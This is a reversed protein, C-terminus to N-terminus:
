QVVTEIIRRAYHETGMLGADINNLEDVADSSSALLKRLKALLEPNSNLGADGKAECFDEFEHIERWDIRIRATLRPPLIELPVNSHDMADGLDGLVSSLKALKYCSEGKSPGFQAWDTIRDAEALFEALRPDRAWSERCAELSEKGARFEPLLDRLLNVAGNRGRVLAFYMRESEDTVISAPDAPLARRLMEELAKAKEENEVGMKHVIEHLAFALVRQQVNSRKAGNKILAVDFCIENSEYPFASAARAKKKKDLCPKKSPVFKMKALREYVNEKGEGPFLSRLVEPDFPREDRGKGPRIEGRLRQTTAEIYQLVFPALKRAQLIAHEVDESNVPRDKGFNGGGTDMTGALSAPGLALLLLALFCAAKPFEPQLFPLRM